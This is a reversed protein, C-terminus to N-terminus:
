EAAKCPASTSPHIQRNGNDIEGGDDIDPARVGFVASGLPGPAGDQTATSDPDCAIAERFDLLADGPDILRALESDDLVWIRIRYRDSPDESEKNNGGPESRDEIDVRFLCSRYDRPGSGFSIDGVGAAPQGDVTVLGCVDVYPVIAQAPTALFACTM